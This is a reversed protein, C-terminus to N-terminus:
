GTIILLSRATDLVTAQLPRPEWGLLIRAKSNSIQKRKGLEPVMARLGPRFLALARVLWSPLRRRPVRAGAAGLGARLIQAIEVMSVPAQGVAIFRQGVAAPTVLARLHADVVDRVDVM